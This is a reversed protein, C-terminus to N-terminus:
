EINLVILQTIIQEKIITLKNKCFINTDNRKHSSKFCKYCKKKVFNAQIHTSFREVLITFEKFREVIRNIRAVIKDIDRIEFIITKIIKIKKRKNM